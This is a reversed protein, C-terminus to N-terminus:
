LPLTLLRSITKPLDKWALSKSAAGDPPLFASNALFPKRWRFVTNGM